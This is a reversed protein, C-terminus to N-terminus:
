LFIGSIDKFEGASDRTHEAHLCRYESPSQGVVFITTLTTGYDEKRQLIGKEANTAVSKLREIAEELTENEIGELLSFANAIRPEKKDDIAGTTMVHLGSSLREAGSLGRETYYIVYAGNEDAYLINCYNYKGSSLERQILSGVDQLNAQSLADLVLLGRSRQDDGRKHGLKNTLNVLVGEENVGIWTGGKEEDIPAWIKLDSGPYKILGPPLGRRKHYEDRNNAIVVPWNKFVDYLLISTCAMENLFVNTTIFVKTFFEDM